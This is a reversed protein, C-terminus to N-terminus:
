QPMEATKPTSAGGPAKPSTSNEPPKGKLDDDRAPAATSNTLGSMSRVYAALQWIQYAPLRRGFTPMGNPRGEVITSFVQQPESGYLWKDDILPPGMGGGGHGHCGNCNMASFLRKGESLAFANEEYENKVTGTSPLASEVKAPEDSGPDLEVLRTWRVPETAPALPSFERQERKCGTCSFVMVAILAVAAVHTARM